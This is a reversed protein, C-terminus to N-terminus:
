DNMKDLAILMKNLQEIRTKKYEGEWSDILIPLLERKLATKTLLKIDEDIKGELVFQGFGIAIIADDQGKLTRAGIENSSIYIKLIEEDLENFDFPKYGWEDILDSLFVTPSSTENSERWDLFGYFADSGDDSGFPGSEEIPSWYFPENLLVKAKPHAKEPSLEFNEMIQKKNDSPQSSNGSQGNCAGLHSLGMILFMLTKKIKM